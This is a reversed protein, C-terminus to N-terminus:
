ELREHARRRMGTVEKWVMSIGIAVVFLPWSNHFQLVHTENLLMLVGFFVWWGGELRGNVPGQSLKVVGLTLVLGWFISYRFGTIIGAHDLMLAMGVLMITTGIVVGGAGDRYRYRHENNM